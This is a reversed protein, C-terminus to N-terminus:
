AFAIGTVAHKHRQKAGHALANVHQHQAVAVQVVNTACGGHQGHLCLGRQDARNFVAM